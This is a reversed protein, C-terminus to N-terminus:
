AARVKLVNHFNMADARNLRKRPDNDEFATVPMTKQLWADIMRHDVVTSTADIFLLRNGEVENVLLSICVPMRGVTGVTVLPGGGGSKWQDRRGQRDYEQWLCMSEYSNADVVGVVGDLFSALEDAM